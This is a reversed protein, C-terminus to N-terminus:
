GVRGELVEEQGTQARDPSARPDHDRWRSQILLWLIGPALFM